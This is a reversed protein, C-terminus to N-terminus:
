CRCWRSAGCSAWLGEKPPAAAASEGAAANGATTSGATTSGATTSSAPTLAPAQLRYAMATAGLRWLTLASIGFSLADLGFGAASSLAAVVAGGVAPGVFVAVQTSASLLANGSQLQDDTVLKPMISYSAPLFLGEGAGLGFAIPALTLLDPQRTAALVALGAALALRVIDAGMMVAWPSIRDALHGGVMILCTRPIGYAALVTGLLIAGGHHSLVYWPLAVAYLGDGINSVFQGSALLRFRRSTLAPFARHMHGLQAQRATV